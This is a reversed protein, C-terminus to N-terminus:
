IARLKEISVNTTEKQNNVVEYNVGFVSLMALLSTFIVCFFTISIVLKLQKTVKYHLSLILTYPNHSFITSIQPM